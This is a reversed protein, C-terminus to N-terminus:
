TTSLNVFLITEHCSEMILSGVVTAGPAFGLTNVANHSWQIQNHKLVDLRVKLTPFILLFLGGVHVQEVDISERLLFLFM